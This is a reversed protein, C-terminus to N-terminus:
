SSASSYRRLGTRFLLSAVAFLTATLMASGGVMALSLEGALAQAPVTTIVGVPVIWTLALRLWGPYVGIPYRAMQFVSNFVWTFLFGPHWFVLSAFLLYVAYLALVSVCLMLLFLGVQPWELGHGLSMMAAVVVGSGLLLDFFAFLRWHRLSVLFQTNVPRLLTFDFEGRWIEGDMGALGDLGPSIVLDRLASAVLYVGLVILASTYDWGRLSEVQHFVILLGLWGTALNLLSHFIGIYFNARYAFEQQASALVFMGVLRLYRVM